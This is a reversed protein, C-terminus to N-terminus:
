SSDRSIASGLTRASRVSPGLPEDLRELRGSATVGRDAAYRASAIPRSRDAAAAWPSRVVQGRASSEASPSVRMLAM